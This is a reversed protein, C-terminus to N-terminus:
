HNGENLHNSKFGLPVISYNRILEWTNPILVQVRSSGSQLRSM